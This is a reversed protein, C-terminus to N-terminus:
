NAEGGDIEVQEKPESHLLARLRIVERLFSLLGSLFSKIQILPDASHKSVFEATAKTMRTTERANDLIPKIETKLMIIFGSIQLLLVALATAILASELVLIVVFIDRMIQVLPAWTEAATVAVVLGFLLLGFILVLCFIASLKIIRSLSRGSNGDNGESLPTASSDSETM